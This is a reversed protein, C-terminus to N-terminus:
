CKYYSYTLSQNIPSRDKYVRDIEDHPRQFAYDEGEGYNLPMFVGCIGFLSYVKDEEYKTHREEGWLIWETTSFRDLRSERLAQVPIRTIEGIEIELLAKSGIYHWDQSYFEVVEPAILEQLTWGRTFWRSTM